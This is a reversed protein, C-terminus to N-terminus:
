VIKLPEFDLLRRTITECVFSVGWASYRGVHGYSGDLTVCINLYEGKEYNPNENFNMKFFSKIDNYVKPMNEDYFNDM